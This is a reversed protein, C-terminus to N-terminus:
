DQGVVNDVERAAQTLARKGTFASPSRGGCSDVVIKGNGDLMRFRFEVLV